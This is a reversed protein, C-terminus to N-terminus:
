RRAGKRKPRAGATEWQEPVFYGADGEDPVRAYGAAIQAQAVEDLARRIATRIFEARKRRRSPAVEELRALTAEDLEIVLQKM